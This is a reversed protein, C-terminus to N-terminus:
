NENQLEEWLLELGGMKISKARRKEGDVLGREFETKSLDLKQRKEKLWSAPMSQRFEYLAEACRKTLTKVDVSMMKAIQGDTARAKGPVGAMADASDDAIDLACHGQFEGELWARMSEVADEEHTRSWKAIGGIIHYRCLVRECLERGAMRAERGGICDARTGLPVTRALIPEGFLPLSKSKTM